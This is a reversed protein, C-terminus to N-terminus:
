GDDALDKFGSGGEESGSVVEAMGKEQGALVHQLTQLTVVYDGKASIDLSTSWTLPKSKNAHAALFADVADQQDRSERVMLESFPVTILERLDTDQIIANGESEGVSEVVGRASCVEAVPMGTKEMGTAYKETRYKHDIFEEPILLNSKSIVDDGPRGCRILYLCPLPARDLDLGSVFSQFGNSPQPGTRERGELDQDSSM